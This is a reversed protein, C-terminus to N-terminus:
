FVPFAIRARPRIAVKDAFVRRLEAAEDTGLLGRGDSVPVVAGAGTWGIWIDDSLSSSNAASSGMTSTGSLAAVTILTGLSLVQLSRLSEPNLSQEFLLTFARAEWGNNSLAFEIFPLLVIFSNHPLTDTFISFIRKSFITSDWVSVGDFGVAIARVILIVFPVSSGLAIGTNFLELLATKSACTVGRVGEGADSVMSGCSFGIRAVNPREVLRWNFFTTSLSGIIFDSKVLVMLIRLFDNSDFTSRSLCGACTDGRTRNSFDPFTDFSRCRKLVSDEGVEAALSKVSFIGWSFARISHVLVGNVAIATAWCCTTVLTTTALAETAPLDDVTLVGLTFRLGSWSRLVRAAAMTALGLM